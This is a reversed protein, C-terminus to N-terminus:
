PSFRAFGEQIRGSIKTFDGGAYIRTNPADAEMAWVGGGSAKPRWGQLAGDTDVALLKQRRTEDAPRV